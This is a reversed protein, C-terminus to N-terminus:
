KVIVSVSNSFDSAYSTGNVVNVAKVKYYYTKGADVSKNTYATKTTSDYYKFEKGDTSRYVWYKTAGNVANWSLSPTGEPAATKLTPAATRVVMSKASSFASAYSTGNDVVVAKVKYYYRTGVTTSNNTYTTKTTSDYYKFNKGDTSRYVWYKTAGNVANWSLKPKGNASTISVNPTAPTCVLSKAYSYSSAVSKGNVTAVAKVKYYYKTGSAAGSNTYSTKTTSDYYKFNKGDTSRYIWYKTAGSVAKWSLKPKGNVRSISLSPAATTCKISKVASYDTTTGSSDVAKIKYYYTTGINTSNNTYSTSKTSDYYKFTKGDTSRYIWYKAAGPVTNWSLKPHGASTTIKLAPVPNLGVAVFSTSVALPQSEEDYGQGEFTISATKGNRYTVNVTVYMAFQYEVPIIQYNYLAYYYDSEFTTGFSKRADAIDSSTLDPMAKLMTAEQDKAVYMGVINENSDLKAIYWFYEGVGKLTGPTFNAVQDGIGYTSPMNTYKVTSITHASDYRGIGLNLQIRVGNDKLQEIKMDGATQGLLDGNLWYRTYNNFEYRDAPYMTIFLRYRRSNCTYNPDTIPEYAGTYDNFGYWEIKPAKEGEAVIAATPSATISFDYDLKQGLRPYALNKFYINEVTEVSMVVPTQEAAATDALAAAPLLSIAMCIVLLWAILKKKM